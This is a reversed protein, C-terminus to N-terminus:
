TTSDNSNVLADITTGFIKAIAQLEIDSAVRTQGELKSLSSPNIDVGMLQMKAVLTIQKMGLQKRLQEIRAGSINKTGYNAKRPKM